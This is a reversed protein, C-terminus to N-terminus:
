HFMGGTKFCSIGTADGGVGCTIGESKCHLILRSTPSETMESCVFPEPRSEAKAANLGLWFISVAVMLLAFGTGAFWKRTM